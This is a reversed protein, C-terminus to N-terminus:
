DSLLLDGSVSFNMKGEPVRDKKWVSKKSVHPTMVVDVGERGEEIQHFVQVGQLDLDSPILSKPGIVRIDQCGLTALGYINSKAV